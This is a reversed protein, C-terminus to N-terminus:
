FLDYTSSAQLHRTLPSYWLQWSVPDAWPKGYKNRHWEHTSYTFFFIWFWLNRSMSKSFFHFDYYGNNRQKGWLITVLFPLEPIKHFLYTCLPVHYIKNIKLNQTNQQKKQRMKWTILFSSQKVNWFLIPFIADRNWQVWSGIQM